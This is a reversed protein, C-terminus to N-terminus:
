SWLFCTALFVMLSFLLSIALELYAAINQHERSFGNGTDWVLHRVGHCLHFFLAYLWAWIFAQGLVGNLFAHIRAYPASGAAGAMLCVVLVLMGAVLFVGSVRHSISLIATLPLRYSGLHPSLPRKAAMVAGREAIPRSRDDM